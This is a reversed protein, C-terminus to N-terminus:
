RARRGQARMRPRMVGGGVRASGRARAGLNSKLVEQLGTAAGVNIMLAQARKVVEAGSNVMEVASSM